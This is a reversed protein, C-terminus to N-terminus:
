VRRFIPAIASPGTRASRERVRIVWRCIGYYGIAAIVSMGVGFALGIPSSDHAVKFSLCLGSGLLVVAKVGPKAKAGLLLAALLLFAATLPWRIADWRDFDVGLASLAWAWAAVCLPCKPIFVAIAASGAGLGTRGVGLLRGSRNVCQHCM